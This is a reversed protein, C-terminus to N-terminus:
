LRHQLGSIEEVNVGGDMPGSTGGLLSSIARSLGIIERWEGDEVEGAGETWADERASGVAADHSVSTHLSGETWADKRASGLEADHSVSTHRSGETWASSRATGLEADHSGSAHTSGETWANIRASGLLADHSVSIQPHEVQSCTNCQAAPVFFDHSYVIAKQKVNCITSAHM